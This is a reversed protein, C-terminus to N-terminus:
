TMLIASTPFRLMGCNQNQDVYAFGNEGWSPGWSNKIIYEQTSNNWGVLLIAHNVVLNPNCQLKGGGYNQWASDTTMFVPIPGYELLASIMSNHGNPVDVTRKFSAAKMSSKYDCLTQVGTYPYATSRAAGKATNIIYKFAVDPHGGDCGANPFDRSCDLLQEESFSQIAGETAIIFQSEM